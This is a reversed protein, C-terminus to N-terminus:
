ATNVCHQNSPLEKVYTSYLRMYRSCKALPEIGEPWFNTEITEILRNEPKMRSFENKMSVSVNVTNSTPHKNRKVRADDLYHLCQM